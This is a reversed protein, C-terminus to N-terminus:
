SLRGQLHPAHAAAVFAALAAPSSDIPWDAEKCQNFWIVARVAPFATPLQRFAANIWASKDGGVEASAVEAIMMPKATLERLADYSALFTDAFSRWASWPQRTGFNYGDLAM